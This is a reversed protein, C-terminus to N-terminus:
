WRESRMRVSKSRISPPMEVDSVVGVAGRGENEFGKPPAKVAAWELGDDIYVWDEYV